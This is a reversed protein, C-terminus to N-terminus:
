PFARGFGVFFQGFWLMVLIYGALIVQGITNLAGGIRIDEFKTQTQTM